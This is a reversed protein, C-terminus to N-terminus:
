INECESYPFLIILDNLEQLFCDNHVSGYSVGNKTDQVAHAMEHVAIMWVAKKGNEFTWHHRGRSGKYGNRTWIHGVTPYECFGNKVSWDINEYSFQIQKTQPNFCSAQRNRFITKGMKIGLQEAMYEVLRIAYAYNENKLIEARIEEQRDRQPIEQKKQVPKRNGLEAINVGGTEGEWEGTRPNFKLAM